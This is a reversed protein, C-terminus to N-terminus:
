SSIQLHKQNKKLWIKMENYNSCYNAVCQWFAASHNMHTIHALEHVIVYDIVGKPVM